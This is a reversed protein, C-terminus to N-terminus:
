YVVSQVLVRHTLSKVENRQFLVDSIHVTCFHLMFPSRLCSTYFYNNCWLLIKKWASARSRTSTSIVQFAKAVPSSTGMHDQQLHLPFEAYSHGGKHISIKCLFTCRCVFCKQCLFLSLLVSLQAYMRFGKLVQKQLHFVLCLWSFCNKEKQM